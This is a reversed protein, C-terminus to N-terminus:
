FTTQLKKAMTSEFYTATSGTDVLFPVGFPRTSKRATITYVPMLAVVRHTPTTKVIPQQDDDWEAYCAAGFLLEIDSESLDFCRPMVPTSVVFASM